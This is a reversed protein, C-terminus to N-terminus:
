RRLIHFSDFFRAARASTIDDAADTMYMLGYSRPGVIARRLRIYGFLAGTDATVERWLLGDVEVTSKSIIKDQPRVTLSILEDILVDAPKDPRVSEPVHEVSIVYGRPVPSFNEFIFYEDEYVQIGAVKSPSPHRLHKPASPLEVVFSKDPPSFIAWDLHSTSSLNPSREEEVPPNVKARILFLAVLTSLLGIAFVSTLKM